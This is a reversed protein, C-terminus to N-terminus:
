KKEGKSGEENERKQEAIHKQIMAELKQKQGPTLIKEIEDKLQTRVESLRGHIQIRLEKLREDNGGFIEKMQEKQQPTLALERTMYDMSTFHAGGRGEHGPRRLLIFKDIFIGAVLGAGFVLIAAFVIWFKLKNKM